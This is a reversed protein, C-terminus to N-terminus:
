RWTLSRDRLRAAKRSWGESKSPIAPQFREKEFAEVKDALATTITPPQKAARVGAKITITPSRDSQWITQQELEYRADGRFVAPRVPRTSLAASGRKPVAMPMSSISITGSRPQRIGAVVANLATAIDQSPFGLHRAKDQLLDIKMVRAPANWDFALDKLSPHMGSM